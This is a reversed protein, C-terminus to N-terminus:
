RRSIRKGFVTNGEWESQPSRRGDSGIAFLGPAPPRQCVMAFERWANMVGSIACTKLGPAFVNSKASVSRPLIMQTAM